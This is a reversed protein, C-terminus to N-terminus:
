KTRPTFAASDTIKGAEKRWVNIRWDEMEKLKNLEMVYHGANHDTCLLLCYVINTEDTSNIEAIIPPKEYLNALREVYLEIIAQRTNKGSKKLADLKPRWEEEPIGLAATVVHPNTDVNRQLDFTILTIIIEPKRTVEIGNNIYSGRFRGIANVIEWPLDSAAYPDLLWLNPYRPNIVRLAEPLAQEIPLCSIKLEFGKVGSLLKGLNLKQKECDEPSENYTNLFLIKGRPYTQLCKAALLASGPWTPEALGYRDTEDCYCLGTSAFLDIIDLTPPNRRVHHSWIELYKEIFAHKKRTHWKVSEYLFGREDEYFAM